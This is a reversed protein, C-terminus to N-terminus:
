GRPLRLSSQGAAAHLLEQRPRFSRDFDNSRDLSGIIRAVEIPHVGAYSQGVIRLRRQVEDLALLDM